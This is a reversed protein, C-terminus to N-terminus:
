GVTIGSLDFRSATDDTPYGTVDAKSATLSAGLFLWDVPSDQDILVSAQRLLDVSEDYTAATRSDAILQVVEPNDYNWYYDPNGYNGIDRPEVHLVATLDYNKDTYVQPLWVGNFDVLELKVNLGVDALSTVVFEAWEEPYFNPYLFSLELDAPVGAEEILRRAEDPDFPVGDLDTFWPDTPPVPGNILTGYGNNLEIIAEKDIAARIARRVRVDDLYPRANNFGLTFEGTSTGETITFDPNGELTSILDTNVGTLIDVDGTQFANVAANPDTFYVFTAGSIAPLDGWYGNYRTLSISTGQNWESFQFPGTGNATNELDTAEAQLVAGEGRSLSFLLNNDPTGLQIEVTQDDVATVSEVSALAEAGQGDEARSQDLSWVVDAAVLPDGSHFTVGENLTFTYTTGDASVEPLAALGPQPNGTEDSDVLTEYVNDLLIQDLAAGAQHLIDLSTPELVAGVVIAPDDGAPEATETEETAETTPEEPEATEEATGADTEDAPESEAPATDASETTEAPEDATDSADDDGCATVALAGAVLLASLRRLRRGRSSHDVSFNM